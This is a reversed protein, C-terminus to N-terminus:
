VGGSRFRVHIIHILQRGSHIVFHPSGAIIHPFDQKLTLCDETYWELEEPTIFKITTYIIQIFVMQADFRIFTLDDM